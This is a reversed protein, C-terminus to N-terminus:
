VRSLDYRASTVTRLRILLHPKELLVVGGRASCGKIAQEGKRSGPPRQERSDRTARLDGVGTM